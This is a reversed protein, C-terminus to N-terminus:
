NDLLIDLNQTANGIKTWETSSVAYISYEHEEEINLEGNKM